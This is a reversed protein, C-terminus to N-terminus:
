DAEPRVLLEIVAQAKLEDLLQRRKQEHRIFIERALRNRIETEIALWTQDRAASDAPLKGFEELHAQYHEQVQEPTVNDSPRGTVGLLANQLLQAKRERVEFAAQAEADYGPLTYPANARALADARIVELEGQQAPDIEVGRAQAAQFTLERDIARNLLDEYMDARLTREADVAPDTVMLDGLHIDKGNVTALVMEPNLNVTPLVIPPPPEAQAEEELPAPPPPAEPAQPEPMNAPVPEAPPPAMPKGAEPKHIRSKYVTALALGAVVLVALLLWRTTKM